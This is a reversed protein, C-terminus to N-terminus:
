CWLTVLALSGRATVASGPCSLSTGQDGCGLTVVTGFSEAECFWGAAGLRVRLLYLSLFLMEFGAWFVAAPVDM